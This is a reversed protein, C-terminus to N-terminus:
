AKSRHADPKMRRCLDLVKVMDGVVLRALLSEAGAVEGLELSNQSCNALPRMAKWENAGPLDAASMKTAKRERHQKALRTAVQLYQGNRM